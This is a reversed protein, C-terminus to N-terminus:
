INGFPTPEPTPADTPWPTATPEETPTYTPWETPWETPEETPAYYPEPTPTTKVHEARSLSASSTPTAHSSASIGVAYTTNERTESTACSLTGIILFALGVLLLKRM